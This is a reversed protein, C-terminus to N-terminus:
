VYFVRAFANAAPLVDALDRKTVLEAFCEPTLNLFILISFAFIAAKPRKRAGSM